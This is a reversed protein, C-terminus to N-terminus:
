AVTLARAVKALLLSVGTWILWVITLLFYAAYLGTAVGGLPSNAIASEGGLAFTLAYDAFGALASLFDAIALARPLRRTSLALWSFLTVGVIYAAIDGTTSTLSGPQWSFPQSATCRWASGRSRRPSWASPRPLRGISSTSGPPTSWEALFAGGWMFVPFLLSTPMFTAQDVSLMFGAMCLAVLIGAVGAVRVLSSSSM